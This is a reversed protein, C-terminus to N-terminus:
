FNENQLIGFIASKHFELVKRNQFNLSNKIQFIGFIDLKYFKLFKWKLLKWFHRNQLIGFIDPKSFELFKGFKGSEFIMLNRFNNLESFYCIKLMKCNTLSDFNWLNGIKYIIM